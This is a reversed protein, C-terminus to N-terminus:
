GLHHGCFILVEYKDTLEWDKESIVQSLQRM